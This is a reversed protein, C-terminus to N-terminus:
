YKRGIVKEVIIRAQLNKIAFLFVPDLLPM